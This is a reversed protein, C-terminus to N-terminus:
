AAFIFQELAESPSAGGTKIALDLEVLKSYIKKIKTQNLRGSQALSRVRGCLMYFVHFADDQVWVCDLLLAIAGAKNDAVMADVLRFVSGQAPTKLLVDVDQAVIKGGHKYAKLKAIENTLRWLDGGASAILKWFAPNDINIKNKQLYCKLWATLKVGSLVAFEQSQSNALLWTFLDNGKEVVGEYFVCITEPSNKLEERGRWVMFASIFEKSGCLGKLVILKKEGFMSSTEAAGKFDHFNSEEFDLLKFDLGTKHLSKYRVVIQKLKQGSLYTDAGYLFIIM